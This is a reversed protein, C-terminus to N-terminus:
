SELYKTGNSKDILIVLKKYDKILDLVVGSQSRKFVEFPHSGLSEEDELKIIAEILLYKKCGENM